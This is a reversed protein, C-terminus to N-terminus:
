NDEIELNYVEKMAKASIYGDKYDQIVKEKPRNKPSGYGGSGPTEFYLIDGKNVILSTTKGYLRQENETGRNLIKQGPRGDLGGYFGKPNTTEGDGRTTLTLQDELMEIERIIGLGGRYEGMGGSDQHLEYTHFLLPYELEASEIPVNMCNGVHVDIGSLGDKTPRAGMGGGNLEYYVFYDNTKPNNGGIAVTTAHANSSAPIRDPLAKSMAELCIDSLRMITHYRGSVPAPFHPNLITGKKTRVEIPKYAGENQPVSSDTVCRTIYYAVANVTEETVNFPGKAQDACKTFDYIMKDDLIEISVHLQIQENKVVGDDDLHGSATYIGNKIAKIKSKIRNESYTEWAQVIEQITKISYKEYLNRVRKKGIENASIQSRIDGLTYSPMRVNARIISILTQNEIGKEYLKVPPILLGEQYLETANGPASGPAIGGVDVHHCMSGCFGVLTDKVFVPAFLLIDPSHSAGMYPHNIMIQDGEFIEAQTFHNKLIGKLTGGMSGLHTPINDSQAILNGNQDFVATSFDLAERVISSYATRQLAASMEEAISMFSHGVVEMTIPNINAAIM